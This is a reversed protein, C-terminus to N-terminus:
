PRSRSDWQVSLAIRNDTKTVEFFSFGTEVCIDKGWNTDLCMKDNTTRGLIKGSGFTISESTILSKKQSTSGERDYREVESLCDKAPCEKSQVITWDTQTDVM